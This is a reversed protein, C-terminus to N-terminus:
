AGPETTRALTEALRYVDGAGLTLVVDGEGLEGLREVAARWDACYDVRAHGVAQAIQQGIELLDLAPPPPAAAALRVSRVAAPRRGISLPDAAM